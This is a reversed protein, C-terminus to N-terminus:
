MNYVGCACVCKRLILILVALPHMNRARILSLILISLGFHCTYPLWTISEQQIVFLSFSAISKTLCDVRFIPVAIFIDSFRYGPEYCFLNFTLPAKRQRWYNGSSTWSHRKRNLHWLTQNDIMIMKKWRWKSKKLLIM